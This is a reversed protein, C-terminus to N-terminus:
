QAFLRERLEECAGDLGPFLSGATIGMLALEKMVTEREKVPIDIAYLYQHQRVQEVAKIYSEVDSVNTLASLAQQPILRENEIALFELLSFHPRVPATVPIQLNEERWQAQDLQFIRVCGANRKRSAAITIHRFAFFAAVYPSYSWDILPTPFGHHQALHLLAGFQDSDAPNFIHKTRASLHRHLTGLDDFTYRFLDSRNTRHFHSRLRWPKKQGRFIFKRTELRSVHRKFADWSMRKSPIDSPRDPDNRTLRAQGEMGIDSHWQVEMNTGDWRIRAQAKTAIRIEQPFVERVQQPPVLHTSNKPHTPQLLITTFAGEPALWIEDIRGVIVPANVGEGPFLMASGVTHDFRMELDIVIDGSWQTARFNGTWQGVLPPPLKPKQAKTM